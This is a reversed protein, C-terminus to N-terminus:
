SNIFEEFGKTYRSPDLTKLREQRDKLLYKVEFGKRIASVLWGSHKATGNLIAEDYALCYDKLEAETRLPLLEQVTDTSLGRLILSNAAKSKNEKSVVVPKKGSKTQKKDTDLETDTDLEIDTDADCNTASDNCKNGLEHYEKKQQTDRYRYSRENTDMAKQRDQFKAIVYNSENHAVIGAKILENLESLLQEEPVRFVFIMHDVPPLEGDKDWDGALCLCEYFRLRAGPSMMMVKPDYITEHFLKLWYKSAM